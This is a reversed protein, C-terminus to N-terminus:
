ETSDLNSQIAARNAPLPEFAVVQGTGVLRAAILTFFGINAGVDWVVSGPQIHAAFLDQIAPESTGLAYGPHAGAPDILLGKAQGHGVVRPGQRLWSTAGRVLPGIYPRFQQHGIWRAVPAPVRDIVGM